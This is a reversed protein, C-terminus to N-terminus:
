SLRKVCHNSIIAVIVTVIIKTAIIKDFPIIKDTNSIKDNDSNESIIIVSIIM